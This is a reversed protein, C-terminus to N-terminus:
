GAVTVLSGITLYPWVEEAEAYPLEVCGLSQPFGYGARAIYHVADGGNFYAVWAVPDAYPIGDPNVGTMVQSALREYVPFTGDATPTLSGGTNAPSVLLQRNDHWVTLTEPDAKDVLAFAYGLRDRFAGLRRSAAVLASWTQPDLGGTVALGHQSQFAMLAGTVMVTAQGPDWLARLASPADWTWVFRGPAPVFVEREAEFMSPLRRQAAVFRIPLYGLESLIQQARLVSGSTTGFRWQVRRALQRGAISRVGGPGAPVTVTVVAGPPFAGRPRFVLVNRQVVWRGPIAPSIRPRAGAPALLGSFRVQIASAGNSGPATPFESLVEFPSAVSRRARSAHPRRGAVSRAHGAGSASAPRLGSALAPSADAAGAGVLGIALAVAVVPQLHWGIRRSSRRPGRHGPHRYATSPRRVPQM